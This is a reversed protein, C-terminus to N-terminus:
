SMYKYMEDLVNDITYPGPGMYALNFQILNVLNMLFNWDINNGPYKSAKRNWWWKSKYEKKVDIKWYNPICPRKSNTEKIYYRDTSLEMRKLGQSFRGYTVYYTYSGGSVGGTGLVFGGNINWGDKNAFSEIPLDRYEYTNLNNDKVYVGRGIALVILYLLATKFMGVFFL